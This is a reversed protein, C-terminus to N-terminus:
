MAARRRIEEEYINRVVQGGKLKLTYIPLAVGKGAAFGFRRGVV